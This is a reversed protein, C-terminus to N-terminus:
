VTSGSSRRTLPRRPARFKWKAPATDCQTGLCRSSSGPVVTRDGESERPLQHDAFWRHCRCGARSLMSMPTYQLSEARMAEALGPVEREIVALTAEPTVDDPTLGTGGTTLILEAGAAV